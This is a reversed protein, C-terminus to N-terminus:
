GGNVIKGDLLEVARQARAAYAASYTVMVITVGRRIGLVNLLTSKGCGSPGTVAVFEGKAIELDLGALALTEPENRVYAKRLGSLRIMWM